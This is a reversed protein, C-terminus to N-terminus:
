GPHRRLRDIVAAPEPFGGGLLRQWFGTARGAVLHEGVLVDFQGPGGPELTVDARLAQKM